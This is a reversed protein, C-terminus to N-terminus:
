PSRDQKTHKKEKGITRPKLHGLESLFILHQQKIQEMHGHLEGLFIEVPEQGNKKQFQMLDALKIQYEMHLQDNKRGAIYHLRNRVNHIFLVSEMMTEFEKESLYGSYELDRTQKLGSMIGAIWLMMHFDRLGGQGEKLNPELLYSSDGFRLHRSRNDKVLM